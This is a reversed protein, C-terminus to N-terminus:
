FKDLVYSLKQIENIEKECIVNDKRDLCRFKAKNLSEVLEESYKRYFM